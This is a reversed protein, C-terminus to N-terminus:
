AYISLFLAITLSEQKFQARLSKQEGITNM